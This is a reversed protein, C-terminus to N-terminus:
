RGLGLPVFGLTTLRPMNTSDSGLLDLSREPAAYDPNSGSSAAGVPSVTEKPGPAIFIESRHLEWLNHM